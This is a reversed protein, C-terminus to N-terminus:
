QQIRINLVETGNTYDEIRHNRYSKLIKEKNSNKSVEHMARRVKTFMQLFMIELETNSLDSIM